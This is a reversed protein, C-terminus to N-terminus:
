IRRPDVQPSAACGIGAGGGGTYPDADALPPAPWLRLCNQARRQWEAETAAEAARAQQETEQQERRKTSLKDLESAAAVALVVVTVLVRTWSAASFVALIAQVAVFLATCFVLVSSRPLARLWALRGSRRAGNAGM